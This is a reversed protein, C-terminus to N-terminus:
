HLGIFFCVFRNLLIDTSFHYLVNFLCNQQMRQAHYFQNLGPYVQYNKQCSNLYFLLSSKKFIISMIERLGVKEVSISYISSISIGKMLLRAINFHKCKCAIEYAEELDTSKKNIRLGLRFIYLVIDRNGSMCANQLATILDIQHIACNAYEKMLKAINLHGGKCAGLFGRVFDNAGYKFVLMEIIESNGSVCAGWLGDNINMTNNAYNENLFYEVLDKMGLKCAIVLGDIYHIREEKSKPDFLQQVFIKYQNLTFEATNSM